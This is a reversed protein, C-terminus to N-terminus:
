AVEAILKEIMMQAQHGYSGGFLNFHNLVHYLNYLMKRKSYGPDIDWSGRYSQYFREDFGGFLETMALDAERDGYYVAPDFIVPAGTADASWNGGWLDGHLLSPAPQYSDFFRPLLNLLRQGKDILQSSADRGRALDLQYRLRHRGLFNLWCACRTNVQPTSGITNDRDWGFATSLNRHLAALQEGMLDATAASARGLELYELVLWSHSANDGCAVPRPAAIAGTDLIARLGAMEAEFMPRLAPQNYKVFFRQGGCDLRAASNICGGGVPVARDVRFPTGTAKAISEQIDSWDV